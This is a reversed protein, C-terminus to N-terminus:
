YYMKKIDVSNKGLEWIRYNLIIKFFLISLIFGYGVVMFFLLKVRYIFMKGWNKYIFKLVISKM